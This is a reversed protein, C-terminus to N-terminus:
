SRRLIRRMRDAVIEPENDRLFFTDILRWEKNTYYDAYHENRLFVPPDEDRMAKDLDKATLGLKDADWEVLVRPVHPMAPHEHYTEDNPIITVTVGPIGDLADFLYKATRMQKEYLGDGEEIFIELAVILGVIQEKSIKHGRGWGHHPFSHSRIAEIIQVGKGKGLMFGTNNPARIAKGGSFCTIDAGMDSYKYLNSVPPLESAIDVVVPINHKQGVEVIEEFPLTGRPVANYSVTYSLCCTRDNIASEIEKKFSKLTGAQGYEVLRAGAATWQPAYGTYHGRPFLIENKLGEANPLRMWAGFDNGAMCGAVALEIAAGAGTTIHADDVHCLRAIREDARALLEHMDVFVKAVENMADLVGDDIWNGGIATSWNKANIWSRVGLRELVRSRYLYSM